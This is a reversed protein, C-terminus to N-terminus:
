FVFMWCDSVWVKEGFVLIGARLVDWHRLGRMLEIELGGFNEANEMERSWLPTSWQRLM